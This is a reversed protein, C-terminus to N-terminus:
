FPESNIYIGAEKDVVLKRQCVTYIYNQSQVANAPANDYYIDIKVEKELPM